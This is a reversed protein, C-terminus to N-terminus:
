SHLLLEKVAKNLLAHFVEVFFEMLFVQSIDVQQSLATDVVINVQPVLNNPELAANRFFFHKFYM